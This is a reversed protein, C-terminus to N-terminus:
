VERVIRFGVIDGKFLSSAFYRNNSRLYQAVGYWSGGRLVKLPDQSEGFISDDIDDDQDDVNGNYPAFDDECWEYLNGAMDYLNWANPKKTGVPHTKEESNQMYWGYDDLEKYKKKFIRDIFGTKITGFGYPTDSGARCSYEWEAETALRYKHNTKESLWKSYAIADNWSVSMVPRSDRGWGNDDVLERSTDRCFKDYEGFTILYMGMYFDKRIQVLHAPKEVDYGVKEDDKTGMMFEGARILTLAPEIFTSGIVANIKKM